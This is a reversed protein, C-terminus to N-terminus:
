HATEAGILMQQNGSCSTSLSSLVAWSRPRNIDNSECGHMPASLSPAEKFNLDCVSIQKLSGAGETSPKLLLDQRHLFACHSHAKKETNFITSIALAM